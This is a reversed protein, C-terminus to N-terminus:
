NEAYDFNLYVGITYYYLLISVYEQFIDMYIFKNEDVDEFEM